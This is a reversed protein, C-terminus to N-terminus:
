PQACCKRKSSPTIRSLSASCFHSVVASYPLNERHNGGGRRGHRRARAAASAGTACRVSCSARKDTYQPEGWLNKVEDPDNSLDFLQGDLEEETVPLLPFERQMYKEAFDPTPDYPPHPGPFGVELFLPREDKPKTRIWWTAMDGVFNDPHTDAPLDWTFAGLCENYDPRQRYLERQQDTIIFIVHPQSM